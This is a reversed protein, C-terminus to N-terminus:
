MKFDDFKKKRGGAFISEKDNPHVYPSTSSGSNGIIDEQASQEADYWKMKPKDIGIVFRRNQAIDGHRNKLQKVMIQNLEELEETQILALFLDATAPLGFSESTDELGVDSNGFGSRTTQTASWVPLNFEVALGRLEEAIAKVYTYSNVSNSGALRQSACINLYDVYIIDPKFTKKLALENLLHRFHGTHAQSTPFEKIILKGKIKSKLANMKKDYIPKTLDKLNDLKIDLLNADIREAIKEEAMEMTVYLVNKGITLNAAAMHCMGITKGVGTGAMLINLSKRTVGGGTIKNLYEIDFPIKEEKAHYFDFREDSDELFDHGVHNDFTVGLADALLEPIAGQSQDGKKGDIIEISEMIANYVAKDKCFKETEDLLWQENNDVADLSGILAEADTYVSANLDEREDIAIGLAEKSPVDNYKSYFKQIETFVVKETNDQFYEDKLFVIVKRAFAENHILNSLITSEINV